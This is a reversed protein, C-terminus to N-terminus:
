RRPPASSGDAARGQLLQLGLELRLRLFKPRDDFDAAGMQHVGRRDPESLAEAAVRLLDGISTVPRLLRDVDQLFQGEASGGDAGPQIPGFFKGCLHHPVQLMPGPDIEAFRRIM